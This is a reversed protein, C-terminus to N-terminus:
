SGRFAPPLLMLGVGRCSRASRLADFVAALAEERVGHKTAEGAVDIQVLLDIRRAAAAAAEDLTRVLAPEDISHSSTSGAGGEEGQEVAPPRRPALARRSRRNQEMKLLAEQVKNEGFDIQGADAAARV